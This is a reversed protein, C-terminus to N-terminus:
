LISREDSPPAVNAGTTVFGALSVVKTSPPRAADVAYVNRTRATFSVPTESQDL